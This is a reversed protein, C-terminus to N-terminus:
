HKMEEAVHQELIPLPMAGSGIIWEHFRRIDFRPGLQQQANKRLELMKLSGIKYALAQAPIDAAYRLTETSIETDSLLTNARMFESARERSWGLANMGTDVVLRVSLMMDMTLRGYRDYPDDYIGMDNGLAASYEGWGEVFATAFSERRFAPLQQNEEQRAIQFHHGPILEHAILAPAFLLNRENLKSGNYYYHGVPDTATPAQYYGFTMAGELSPNLRQVDYRANPLHEFFQGIHPEIKHMYGTLREGIEEPTKAFFRPDTKLFQDFEAKTGKFGLSDRIEQMARNIREVERQGLQHIEEPALNLTTQEQVFHRYANLGGPYQSLGVSAPARSEYDTSFADLLQQLAPNVKMAIADRVAAAKPTGAADGYFPSKEPDRILNGIMARVAGLEPKPVLIARRQETGVIEIIQNIFRPYENLLRLRDAGTLREQTFIQNVGRIPTAYPTVPFRYWFYPLSDVLHQNDWRLMEWTIREDGTLHSSKVGELRRLFARASEVDREAQAYSPDPLHKTTVGTKIQLYPTAELQQQWYDNAIRNLLASSKQPQSTACGACFLLLIVL